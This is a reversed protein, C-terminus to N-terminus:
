GGIVADLTDKTSEPQEWREQKMQLIALELETQIDDWCRKRWPSPNPMWGLGQAILQGMRKDDGEWSDGRFSQAFWGADQIHSSKVGDLMEEILRFNLDDTQLDVLSGGKMSSSASEIYEVGKNDVCLARWGFIWSADMHTVEKRERYGVLPIWSGAIKSVVQVHHGAEIQAQGQWTWVRSTAFLNNRRKHPNNKKRTKPAQKKRSM